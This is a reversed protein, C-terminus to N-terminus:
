RWTKCIRCLFMIRLPDRTSRILSECSSCEEELGFLTFLLKVCAYADERARFFGMINLKTKQVGDITPENVLFDKYHAELVLKMAGMKALFQLVNIWVGVGFM